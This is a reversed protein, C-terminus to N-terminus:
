ECPLNDLGVHTQDDLVGQSDLMFCEVCCYACIEDRVYIDCEDYTLLKTERKSLDWTWQCETSCRYCHVPQKLSQFVFALGIQTPNQTITVYDDDNFEYQTCMIHSANVRAIHKLFM